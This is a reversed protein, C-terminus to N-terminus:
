EIKSKTTIESKEYGTIGRQSSECIVEIKTDEWQKWQQNNHIYEVLMQKSFEHLEKTGMDPSSEQIRALKNKNRGPRREKGRKNNNRQKNCIRKIDEEEQQMQNKKRKHPPDQEIHIPSSEEQSNDLNSQQGATSNMTTNHLTESYFSYTENDNIEANINEDYITNTYHGEDSYKESENDSGGNKNNLEHNGKQTEHM